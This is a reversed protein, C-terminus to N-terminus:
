CYNHSPIPHRKLFINGGYYGTTSYAMMTLWTTTENIVFDVKWSENQHSLAPGCYRLPLLLPSIAIKYAILIHHYTKVWQSRDIFDYVVEWSDPWEKHKTTNQQPKTGYGGCNNLENHVLWVLHTGIIELWWQSLHHRTAQCCWAIVPVLTLKDNTFYKPMWMLSIECSISLIHIRSM